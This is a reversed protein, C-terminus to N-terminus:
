RASMRARLKSLNHAAVPDAPRAAVCREYLRAAGAHDGVLYAETAAAFCDSYAADSLVEPPPSPEPKPRIAVPEMSITIRARELEPPPALSATPLPSSLPAPVPSDEPVVSRPGDVNAVHRELAEIGRVISLDEPSHARAEYLLDLADSFRRERLMRELVARDIAAADRALLRPAQVGLLTDRRPSAANAPAALDGGRERPSARPPEKETMTVADPALM